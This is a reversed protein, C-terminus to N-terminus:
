AGLAKNIELANQCSLGNSTLTQIVNLNDDFMMSSACFKRWSMGISAAYQRLGRLKLLDDPTTDGEARSIIKQAFMGRSGLYFYDAHSMVRATCVIITGGKRHIKRWEHALPLLTDQEILDPTSHERWHDLDLSGDPRTAQRHSSDIVTHDLDFIFQM